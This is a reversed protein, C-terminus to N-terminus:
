QTASTLSRAAPRTKANFRYVLLAAYAALAVLLGIWVGRVGFEAGFALIWCLPFGVGWFSVGALVMAARTDSLGRLAGAAVSQFGDVVYFAAAFILLASALEFTTDNQEGRAGLFFAPIVDAFVITAVLTVLSGLGGLALAVFGAQRTGATDGGGYALGVRVSAAMGIGLPLMFAISAVQLAIQHAALASVSIAGAMLNSATFLGHEFTFAVAIPSGIAFLARFQKWDPRWINALPEHRAYPEVNAVYIAAIVCMASNVITTALGAGLLGLAPLGLAGYILGYALALNVPIAGVMIWLGPQASGVASMYGRIAMFIWAPLLSWSLGWLYTMAADIVAIDQGLAALLPASTLLLLAVTPVFLALSGHIGVRLSRRVGRTDNAGLAQATLPAVAAVVGMGILFAIFLVTHALAGAALYTDGLRGILALDTTFMAIQGFQTLALPLALRLTAAVECSLGVPRYKAPQQGGSAVDEM